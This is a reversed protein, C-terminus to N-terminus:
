PLELLFGALRPLQYFVDREVLGHQLIEDALFILGERCRVHNIM